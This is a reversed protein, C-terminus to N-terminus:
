SAVEARQQRRLFARARRDLKAEDARKQVSSEPPEIPEPFDRGTEASKTKQWALVRLAHEQRSLMHMEDTWALPGGIARWLMSGPPLNVALNAARIPRLMGTRLGGIDLGYVRQFDAELM